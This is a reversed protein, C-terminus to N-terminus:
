SPAVTTCCAQTEPDLCASGCKVVTGVRYKAEGVETIWSGDDDPTWPGYQSSATRPVFGIGASVAVLVCMITRRQM